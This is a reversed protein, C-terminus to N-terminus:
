RLLRVSVAVVSPIVFLALLAAFLLIGRAGRSKVLYYPLAIPWAFFVFADFEFPLRLQRGRRDLYAWIALVLQQFLSELMASEGPMVLRHSALVVRTATVIATLLLLPFLPFTNGLNLCVGEPLNGTCASISLV